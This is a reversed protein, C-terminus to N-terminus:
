MKYLAMNKYESEYHVIKTSMIHQTQGYFDCKTFWLDIKNTPFEIEVRIGNVYAILMLPKTKFYLGPVWCISNTLCLVNNM